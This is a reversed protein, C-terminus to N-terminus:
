VIEHLPLSLTKRKQYSLAMVTSNWAVFAHHKCISQFINLNMRMFRIYSLQLCARCKSISGCYNKNSPKVLSSDAETLENQLTHEFSLAWLVVLSMKLQYRMIDLYM